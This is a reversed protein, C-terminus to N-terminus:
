SVIKTAIRRIKNIIAGSYFQVLGTYNYEWWTKCKPCTPDDCLVFKPTKSLIETEIEIAEKAPLVMSYAGGIQGVTLIEKRLYEPYLKIFGRSCGGIEEAVYLKLGSHSSYYSGRTNKKRWMAALGLNHQVWHTSGFGPNSICCGLSMLKGNLEALKKIPLFQPATADHGGCLYEANKGIAVVSTSPHMSRVSDPHTLMRTVMFGLNTASEPSYPEDETLEDLPLLKTYAASAITGNPGVAELFADLIFEKALINNLLIQFVDFKVLLTDGSCVGIGKLDEVLKNQSIKM